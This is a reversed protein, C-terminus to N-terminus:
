ALAFNVQIAFNQTLQKNAPVFYAPSNQGYFLVGTLFIIRPWQFSPEFLASIGPVGGFEGYGTLVGM